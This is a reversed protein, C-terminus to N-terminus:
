GILIHLNQLTSQGDETREIHLALNRDVSEPSLKRWRIRELGIHKGKISIKKVRFKAVEKLYLLTACNVSHARM